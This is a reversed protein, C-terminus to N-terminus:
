DDGITKMSLVSITCGSDHEYDQIKAEQSKQNWLLLIYLNQCNDLVQINFKPPIARM